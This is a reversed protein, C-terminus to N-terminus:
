DRDDAAMARGHAVLADKLRLAARTRHLDARYVLAIRDPWAVMSPHLRVLRGGNGYRAVRRPLIGIGLGGSALSKVLELEGCTLLRGPTIGLRAFEDLYSMSQPLREVLMVPGERVRAHAEAESEAAVTSFLDVADAFLDVLVLDLHPRPNVVLGFHLERDVVRQLVDASPGNWLTIEIGPAVDMFPGLFGPLFYAGLSDNCGVVFKGVEGSELGAIEQELEGLMVLVQEAGRALALGTSTVEVGRSTRLLLTTEFHAELRQVTASLTPQSCGLSRAAASLSTHETIVRFVRLWETDM